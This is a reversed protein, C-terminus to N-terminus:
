VDNVLRLRQRRHCSERCGRPVACLVNGGRQRHVPISSWKKIQQPVTGEDNTGRGAHRFEQWDVDEDAQIVAQLSTDDIAEMGKELSSSVFRKV